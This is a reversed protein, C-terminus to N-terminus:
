LWLKKNMRSFSILFSKTIIMSAFISLLIGIILTMAFGQVFSTGVGFLILAVILTTFNGDRISPWARSFAQDISQPLSKGERLEERLRSFILVNADVAMGLSLIFGGIGALTLTISFLKFFALILLGYIILSISALFGPFKYIILLFAIVAIIGVLGANISKNLSELGLTPGITTQSIPNGIPVPLAGANLNRALERAEQLGFDGDIQASGGVIKERVRPASILQNDIFIALPKDVYQGTLEEFIKSGQEDFEISVFAEASGEPLYVVARKLYRGTLETPIYPNEITILDNEAGGELIKINNEMIELYNEKPAQFQLFPTKGIEQVAQQPDTIGPIRVKLRYGDTTLVTEIEPERVGLVNIRREIVDRLGQMAESHEQPTLQSLDAEYLLEVGGQLDLGLSFDKEFLKINFFSPEIFIAALLGLLILVISLIQSYRKAM